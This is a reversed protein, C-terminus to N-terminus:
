AEGGSFASQWKLYQNENALFIGRCDSKNPTPGALGGRLFLQSKAVQIPAALPGAAEGRKGRFGGRKL